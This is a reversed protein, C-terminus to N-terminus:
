TNVTSGSSILKNYINEKIKTLERTCRLNCRNQTVHQAM